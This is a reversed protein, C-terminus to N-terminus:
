PKALERYRYIEFLFLLLIICSPGRSLTLILLSIDHVKSIPPVSPKLVDRLKILDFLFDRATKISDIDELLKQADNLMKEILGQYDTLLSLFTSWENNFARCESSLGTVSYSPIKDYWNTSDM